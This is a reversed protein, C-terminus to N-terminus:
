IRRRKEIIFFFHKCIFLRIRQKPTLVSKKKEATKIEAYIDTGIDRCTYQNKKVAYKAEYLNKLYYYLIFPFVANEAYDNFLTKYVKLCTFWKLSVTNRVASNERQRYGYVRASNVAICSCHEVYKLNFVLDENVAISEDFLLGYNEIISKKFLKSWVMGQTETFFVTELEKTEVSIEGGETFNPTGSETFCSHGAASMDAGTSVLSDILVSLYNPSVTDDSDIFTIYDGCSQEMGFNRSFSVGHNENKYLRIRPESEAFKECIEASGDTSGDDIILLEFNEYNQSLVSSLCDSIYDATNHIPIIISILRNHDTSKM